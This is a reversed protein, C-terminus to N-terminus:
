GKFYFFNEIKGLLDLFYFSIEYGEDGKLAGTLQDPFGADAATESFSESTAAACLSPFIVCWWNRGEASGISVKLSSYIGSPLSFTDYHRVPFSEKSFSVDVQEAIGEKSLVSRAAAEIEELHANIYAKIKGPDSSERMTKQIYDLVSDRVKLKMSQDEASDSNAVVHLRVVQSQLIYKNTLAASLCILALMLLSCMTCKLLFRM